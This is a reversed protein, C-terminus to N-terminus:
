FLPKIHNEMPAMDKDLCPPSSIFATYLRVRHGAAQTALVCKGREIKREGGPTESPTHPLARARAPVQQQQLEM